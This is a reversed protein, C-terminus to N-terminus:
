ASAICAAIVSSAGADRLADACATLTSGTTVVDDILLVRRGNVADSDAAFAGSVAERRAVADRGVQTGTYRTRTLLPEHPVGLNAAVVDALLAAQNYGRWRHRREHLPVPVVVDFDIQFQILGDDLAGGLIEALDRAGDFKFAHIADRLMGHHPGISLVRLGSDLHREDLAFPYNELTDRCVACWAQGVRGCHNCTRPYLLDIVRELVQGIM